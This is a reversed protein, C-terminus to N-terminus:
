QAIHLGPYALQRGLWQATIKQRTYPAGDQNALTPSAAPHSARQGVCWVCAQISRVSQFGIVNQFSYTRCFNIDHKRLTFDDNHTHMMVDKTSQTIQSSQLFTLNVYNIRIFVGLKIYLTKSKYQPYQFRFRCLVRLIFIKIYTNDSFSVLPIQRYFQLALLHLYM